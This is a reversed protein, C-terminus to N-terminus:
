VNHAFGITAIVVIVILLMQITAATYKDVIQVEM